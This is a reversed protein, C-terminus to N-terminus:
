ANVQGLREAKAVSQHVLESVVSDFAVESVDTNMASVENDMIDTPKFSAFIQGKMEIQQLDSALLSTCRRSHTAQAVELVQLKTWWTQKWRRGGGNM